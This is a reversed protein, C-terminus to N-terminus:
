GFTTISFDILNIDYIKEEIFLFLKLRLICVMAFGEKTIRQVCAIIALAVPYGFAAM